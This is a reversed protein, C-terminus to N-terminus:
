GVSHTDASLLRIVPANAAPFHLSKLAQAPVWRFGNEVPQSLDIIM